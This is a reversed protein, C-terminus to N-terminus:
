CPTSFLMVGRDTKNYISPPSGGNKGEGGCVKHKRNFRCGSESTIPLLTNLTVHQYAREKCGQASRSGTIKMILHCVTHFYMKSQDM